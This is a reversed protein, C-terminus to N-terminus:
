VTLRAILAARLQPTIGMVQALYAEVSGCRETISDFASELFRAEVGTVVQVAEESLNPGFRKELDSRLAAVRAQVDGVVNTLLYDEIIDDRHVGLLSHLLGVAVGTRDKGAACYVVSARPTIALAQFYQQLVQVLLPRFPLDAYRSLMTSRADAANFARSAAEVHPAVAATEGEACYVPVDFGPPRRCPLKQREATGRLDVVASLDLATVLELDAQTARGHEGSRFLKGCVVRTGGAAPYGGYDRFNHIGATPVVRSDSSSIAATKM